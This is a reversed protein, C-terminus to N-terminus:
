SAHQGSLFFGCILRFLVVAAHGKGSGLIRNHINAEKLPLPKSCNVNPLKVSGASIINNFYYVHIYIYIYLNSPDRSGFAPDVLM